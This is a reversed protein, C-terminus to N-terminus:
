NNDICEQKYKKYDESKYWEKHSEECLKNQALCEKCQNNEDCGKKGCGYGYNCPMLAGGGDSSYM